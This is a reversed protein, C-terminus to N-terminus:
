RIRQGFRGDVRFVRASIMMALPLGIAGLASFAGHLWGTATVDVCGADCPLFGVVVM